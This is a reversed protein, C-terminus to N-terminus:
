KQSTFHGSKLLQEIFSTDYRGEVFEKSELIYKEFPITTNVGEILYEALARRGRAIAEDRTDGYVILKGIL